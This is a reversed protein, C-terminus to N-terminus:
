KLSNCNECNLGTGRCDYCGTSTPKGNNVLKVKEERKKEERLRRRDIAEHQEYWDALQRATPNRGDYVVRNLTEEDMRKIKGCTYATLSDLIEANGYYSRAAEKIDESTTIDLSDNLYMVLNALRRSETEDSTAEM